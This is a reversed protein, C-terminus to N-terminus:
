TTNAGLGFVVKKVKLMLMCVEKTSVGKRVSLLKLGVIFSQSTGHTLANCEQRCHSVNASHPSEVRTLRSESQYAQLANQM